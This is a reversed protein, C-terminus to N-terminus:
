LVYSGTITFARLAPSDFTGTVNKPKRLHDSPFSYTVLPLPNSWLQSNTKTVVKAADSPPAYNNIWPVVQGVSTFSIGVPDILDNPGLLELAPRWYSNSTAKTGTSVNDMAQTSSGRLLALNVNTSLTEQLWSTVVATANFGIVGVNDWKETIIGNAAPVVRGLLQAWEGGAKEEDSPTLPFPDTLLGTPLRPKLVWTRVGEKKIMQIYQPVPVGPPYKGGDRTGYLLGANYIDIWNVTSKLPRKAIYIVKGKFFFKLWINGSLYQISANVGTWFNAAGMVQEGTFLEASNVEGFWGLQEDGKKLWKTGPGSDPFFTGRPDRGGALMLELM